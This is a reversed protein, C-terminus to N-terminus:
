TEPLRGLFREITQCIVLDPQVAAVYGQDLTNSWTFHTERFARSAWWSLQASHAGTGFTSDGFVMVTMDYSASERRWIRRSGVHKGSGPTRSEILDPLPGGDLPDDHAPAIHPDWLNIHFLRRSLDGEFFTVDAPEAAIVPSDPLGLRAALAKMIAQTGPPAPHADYHLWAREPDDLSEFIRRGSLYWSESGIEDELHRLLPTIPSELDILHHLTTTKEPVVMQIYRAGLQEITEKRQRFLSAWAEGSRELARREVRTAPQRYRERVANSGGTLFTFGGKGVTASGDHSTLGVPFLVTSLDSLSRPQTAPIREDAVTRPLRALAHLEAECEKFLRVTLQLPYGSQVDKVTYEGTLLAGRPLPHDIVIDFARTQLGISASADERSDGFKARGVVGGRSFCRIDPLDGDDNVSVWGTISTRNRSVREVFGMVPHPTHSSAQPGSEAPHPSGSNGAGTGLSRETTQYVVVDPGLERIDALELHSASRVHVERFERTLWWALSRPDTLQATAGDDVILVTLNLPANSADIESSVLPEWLHAGFLSASLDGQFFHTTDLATLIASSADFGLSAILALALRQIGAPAPHSDYKPWGREPETMSRLAQTASFYWEERSLRREIEELMPTIPRSLSTLDPLVTSKEPVIIQRYSIGLAALESARRRYSHLYHELAESFATQADPTKPRRYLESLRTPGGVLFACGNKGLQVSDDASMMGVPFLIPSLDDASRPCTPSAIRPPSSTRTAPNSIDILRLLEDQCRTRFGVTLPLRVNTRLDRLAYEGTLMAGLPVPDELHIHFNRNDIGAATVDPRPDGIQVVGVEIDRRFCRVDPLTGTSDVALWGSFTMRDRSLGDAYGVVHSKDPM